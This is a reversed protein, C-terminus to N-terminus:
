HRREIPIPELIKHKIGFFDYQIVIQQRGGNAATIVLSHIDVDLPGKMSKPKEDPHSIGKIDFLGPNGGPDTTANMMFLENYDYHGTVFGYDPHKIKANRDYGVIFKGQGVAFFIMNAASGDDVSPASISFLGHFDFDRNIKRLLEKNFVIAFGEPDQLLPHTFLTLSDISETAAQDLLKKVETYSIFYLSDLDLENAIRGGYKGFIRLCEDESATIMGGLFHRIAKTLSYEKASAFNRPVAQAFIHFDETSFYCFVASIFIIALSRKAAGPLKRLYCILANM